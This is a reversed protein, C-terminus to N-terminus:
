VTISANSAEDLIAIEQALREILERLRKRPQRGRSLQFQRGERPINLHEILFCEANELMCIGCDFANTQQFVTANVVPLRRKLNGIEEKSLNCEITAAARVFDYLANIIQQKKEEDYFEMSDMIHIKPRQGQRRSEDFISKPHCLVMLFWHENMMVPILLHSRDMINIRKLWRQIRSEDSNEIAAMFFTDCVYVRRQQEENLYSRRLFEMYFNIIQDNLFERARLCKMDETTIEIRNYTLVPLTNGAQLSM